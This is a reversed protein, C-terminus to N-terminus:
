PINPHSPLHISVDDMDPSGQLTLGHENALHLMCIFSLHPTIDDNSTADPFSSLINKFSLDQDEASKHMEQFTSWLSDKLMHVDVQKSKKDYQIDIKEVQRPQSVLSDDVDSYANGDDFQDGIGYDDDDWSPNAEQHVEDSESHRKGRNKGFCLVNPLLFLKVLNEPKYHCDEPLMTNYPERKAPLLLSNPNKPPIFPDIIDNELAKTFDIDPEVQKKKRPKKSLFPLGSEKAPVEPGKPKQYKWHDPGAWANQSTTLGRMPFVFDDIRIFREDVDRDHYEYQENEEHLEEESEYTGENDNAFHWAGFNDNQDGDPAFADYDPERAFSIDITEIKHSQTSCSMCKAPVELSDFLVRCGGYVGLNNLLLGKAGGEDFQASTQHYLPDVHFAVDFKKLNLNDFSSELTSLPSLKQEQEKKTSPKRQDSNTNGDELSGQELDQGVRNMAGLVKYAEAHVSDVRTSYIKVGAELTCSAKQFNTEADNEEVKIIDHIHDILNLEWTNKQNIKSASLTTSVNESALKICNQFLEIIQEQGLFDDTPNDDAAKNFNVPKRRISAARAARARARELKDDNSGLVFTSVPSLITARQKKVQTAKPSLSEAM